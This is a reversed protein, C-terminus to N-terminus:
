FEFCNSFLIAHKAVLATKSVRKALKGAFSNRIDFDGIVRVM